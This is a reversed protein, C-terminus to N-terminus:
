TMISMINDINACNDHWFSVVNNTLKYVSMCIVVKFMYVTAKGFMIDPISDWIIHHRWDTSVKEPM